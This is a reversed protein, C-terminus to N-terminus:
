PEHPGDARRHDRINGARETGPPIYAEACPLCIPKVGQHAVAQYTQHGLWCWDGCSICSAKGHPCYEPPTRSRRARSTQRQHDDAM